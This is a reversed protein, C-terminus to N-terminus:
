FQRSLNVNIFTVDAGQAGSNKVKYKESALRLNLSTKPDFEYGIEVMTAHTGKLDLTRAKGDVEFKLSSSPVYRLGLGFRMTKMGTYYAMAELPLRDIKASGSKGYHYNATASIALPWDGSQWLVGGGFEVGDGAHIEVKSGNASTGLLWADGGRTVGLTVIPKVSAVGANEAHVGSVAILSMVLLSIIRL